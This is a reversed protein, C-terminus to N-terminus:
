TLTEEKIICVLNMTKILFQYFTDRTIRTKGDMAVASRRQHIAKRLPFTDDEILNSHDEIKFANPISRDIKSAAKSVEDIGSWDMHSRSLINPTGKWDLGSFGEVYGSENLNISQQKGSPFVAVLCDPVEIESDDKFPLGLITELDSHTLQDM